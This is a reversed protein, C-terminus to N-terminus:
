ARAYGVAIADTRAVREQTSETGLRDSPLLLLVVGRAEAREVPVCMYSVGQTSNAQRQTCSWANFVRACRCHLRLRLLLRLHCLRDRLLLCCLCHLGLRTRLLRLPLLFV